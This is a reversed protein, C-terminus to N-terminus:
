SARVSQVKRHKLCICSDADLYCRSASLVSLTARWTDSLKAFCLKSRKLVAVDRSLRSGVGQLRMAM